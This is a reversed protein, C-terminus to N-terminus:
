VYMVELATQQGQQLCRKDVEPVLGTAQQGPLCKKDSGGGNTTSDPIVAQGKAGAPVKCGNNVHWRLEQKLSYIQAKLKDALAALEDNEARLQSAQHDLVAIRELKRLRCKSAAVRNRARKREVQLLCGTIFHVLFHM